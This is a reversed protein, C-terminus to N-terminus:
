ATMGNRLFTAAGDGGKGAKIHLTVNDVLM